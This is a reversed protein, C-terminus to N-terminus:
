EAAKRSYVNLVQSFIQSIRKRSTDIGNLDFKELCSNLKDAEITLHNFSHRVSLTKLEEVLKIAEEVAVAGELEKLRTMFKQSISEVLRWPEHLQEFAEPPMVLSASAVPTEEQHKGHKLYRAAEAFLRVLSVPKYVFSDFLSALEKQERASASATVAIVPVSSLEPISKLERTAVIGDKRPMRIDMFILEPNEQVALNVAEEGDSACIVQLGAGRMAEAMLERNSATDDAVLIKQGNFNYHQKISTAKSVPLDVGALKVDKLTVDFRSGCQIESKVKIRGGMLEVLHHCIVLGLGAGGLSTNKRSNKESFPKFLEKLDDSHIGQGTDQISILLDVSQTAEKMVASVSLNISGSTTFRLSNSLLNSIVQRVRLEDLLLTTPVNNDVFTKLELGRKEAESVFNQRIDAIMDAMRVSEFVLEIRGSELRSLDLMSNLINVLSRSSSLISSVYHEARSNEVMPMLLESFGIIANLPTRVEHSVSAFFESKNRSEAVASDVACSLKQEADKQHTIDVFVGQIFGPRGDIIIESRVAVVSLWRISVKQGSDVRCIRFEIPTKDNGSEGRRIKDLGSGFHALDEPHITRQLIKLSTVEAIGPGFLESVAGKLQLRGSVPELQWLVLGSAELGQRLFEENSRLREDLMKRESIDILGGECYQVNKETYLRGFIAGWFMSGDARRFRLELNVVQDRKKVEDLFFAREGPNFFVDHSISTIKNMAEEPSNYGLIRAMSNNIYHYKDTQCLCRWIGIPSNDYIQRFSGALNKLEFERQRMSSIDRLIGSVEPLGNIRNWFVKMELWNEESTKGHAEGSSTLRLEFSECGSEESVFKDKIDFWKQRIEGRQSSNVHAFLDGTNRIIAFNLGALEDPMGSYAFTDDVPDFSFCIIGSQQCFEKVKQKEHQRQRVLRNFLSFGSGLEDNEYLEVFSDDRNELLGMIANKLAILPEGIMNDFALFTATVSGITIVLLIVLQYIMFSDVLASYATKRVKLFIHWDGSTHSGNQFSLPFSIELYNEASTVSSFSAVCVNGADYLSIEPLDMIEAIEQLQSSIEQMQAGLIMMRLHEGHREFRRMVNTKQQQLLNRHSAMVLVITLIGSVMLMLPLYYLLYRTRFSRFPREDPKVDIDSVMQKQMSKHARFWLGGRKLSVM